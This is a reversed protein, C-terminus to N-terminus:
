KQGDVEGSYAVTACNALNAAYLTSDYWRWLMQEWWPPPEKGPAFVKFCGDAVQLYKFVGPRLGDFREDGAAKRNLGMPIQQNALRGTDLVDDM